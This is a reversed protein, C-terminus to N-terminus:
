TGILLTVELRDVIGLCARDRLDGIRVHLLIIGDVRVSTKTASTLGPDREPKTRQTWDTQRFEKRVLNPGAGTDLVATVKHM